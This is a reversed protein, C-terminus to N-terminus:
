FFLDFSFVKFRPSFSTGVRVPMSPMTLPKDLSYQPRVPYKRKVGMREEMPKHMLQSWNSIVLTRKPRAGLVSCQAGLVVKTLPQLLKIKAFLFRKSIQFYNVLYKVDWQRTRWELNTIKYISTSIRPISQLRFRFSVTEQKM